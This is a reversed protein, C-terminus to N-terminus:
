TRNAEDYLEKLNGTLQIFGNEMADDFDIIVLGLKEMLEQVEKSSNTYYDAIKGFNFVIFRTASLLLFEKVDDELDSKNIEEVLEKYKTTDCLSFVTPCAGNKNPVYQIKPIVTTYKQAMTTDKGVDFLFSM